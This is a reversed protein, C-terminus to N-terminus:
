SAPNLTPKRIVQFISVRVYWFTLILIQYFQHYVMRLTSQILQSYFTLILIM